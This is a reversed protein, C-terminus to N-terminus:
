NSFFKRIVRYSLASVGKMVFKRQVLARKYLRFVDLLGPISNKERILVAAIVVINRFIFGRILVAPLLWARLNNLQM